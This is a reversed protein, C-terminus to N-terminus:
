VVSIARSSFPCVMAFCIENKTQFSLELGMLFNRAPCPMSSAIRKYVALEDLIMDEVKKLQDKQFVKLCILRKPEISQALVARGFGGKGLTRSVRFFGYHPVASMAFSKGNSSTFTYTYTPTPPYVPDVVDPCLDATSTDMAFSTSDTSTNM